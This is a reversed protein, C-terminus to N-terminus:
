QGVVDLSNKFNPNEEARGQMGGIKIKAHCARQLINNVHGIANVLIWSQRWFEKFMHLFRSRQTKRQMLYVGGVKREVHCAHQLRNNVHGISDVPIQSRRVFEKFMHLFRSRQTKGQMLYMGGHKVVHM